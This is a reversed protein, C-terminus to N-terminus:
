VVHYGQLMFYHEILGSLNDNFTIKFQYGEPLFLPYGARSFTIRAQIIENGAGWTRVDVDYGLRGLQANTKIPVGDTIDLVEVSNSDFVKLSYGNTLAAGLNGYEEAQVGVTDEIHIILRHLEAGGAPATYFFDDPTVSYDGTANKTGTGNGNTDLFRYIADVPKFDSGTKSM